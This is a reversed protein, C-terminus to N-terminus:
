KVTMDMDSSSIMFLVQVLTPLIQQYADPVYRSDKTRQKLNQKLTLNIGTEPSILFLRYLLKSKQM